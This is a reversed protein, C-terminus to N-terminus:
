ICGTFCIFFRCVAGDCEARVSDYYILWDTGGIAALGLAGIKKGIIISDVVTYLQQFVNGIIMSISFSLILGFPSGVTMDRDKNM